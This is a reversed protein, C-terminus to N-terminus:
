GAPIVTGALYGPESLEIGPIVKQLEARVPAMDFSPDTVPPMWDDQHGVFVQRAGLLQAEMAIFQAMSGQIPEGDVNPRGAAGLIAVDADIGDLV